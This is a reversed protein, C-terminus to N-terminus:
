RQGYPSGHHADQWDTLRKQYDRAKGELMEDDCVFTRHMAYPTLWNLGCYLATSQLPQALVDFGPHDGIDFHHKDGGTTVA